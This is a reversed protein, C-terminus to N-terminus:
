REKEDEISEDEDWLSQVFPDNGIRDSFDIYFNKVPNRPDVYARFQDGKKLGAEAQSPKWDSREIEFSNFDDANVNPIRTGRDIRFQLLRAEPNAKIMTAVAPVGSTKLKEQSGTESTSLAISGSLVLGLLVLFAIEMFGFFLPYLYLEDWTNVMAENPHRVLYIVEVVDGTKLPSSLPGSSSSGLITHQTGSVDEYAIEPYDSTLMDDSNRKTQYGIVRGVTKIGNFRLDLARKSFVYTGIGCVPIVISLLFLVPFRVPNLRLHSIIVPLLHFPDDLASNGSILIGSIWLLIIFAIFGLIVGVIVFEKLLLLQADKPYSPDYAVTIADGVHASPSADYERGSVRVREGTSTVFEVLPAQVSDEGSSGPSTAMGVVIGEARKGTILLRVPNQLIAGVAFLLLLVIASLM